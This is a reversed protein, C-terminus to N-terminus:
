SPGARANAILVIGVDNSRISIFAEFGVIRCEVLKAMNENAMQRALDCPYGITLGRVADTATLAIQDALLQLEEFGFLGQAAIQSLSLMGVAASIIALAMISGAGVQAKSPQVLAGLKPCM